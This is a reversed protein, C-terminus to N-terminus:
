LSVERAQCTGVKATYPYDANTDIGGNDKVWDFAKNTWGGKECGLNYACDLLEQESLSNLNGTVIANIGEIAGTASFAWCSGIM